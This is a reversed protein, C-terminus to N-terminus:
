VGHEGVVLREVDDLPELPTLVSISVRVGDLEDAALPPFRPDAVASKAATEAVTDLLTKDADLSGLCGRLREVTRGQHQVRQKITVFLGRHDELGPSPRVRERERDLSGDELVAQRIAARALGLLARQEERTLEM